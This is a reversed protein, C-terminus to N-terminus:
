SCAPRTSSGRRRRAGRRTARPHALRHGPLRRAPRAGAAADAAPAPLTLACGYHVLSRRCWCGPQRCRRWRRDARAPRDALAHRGPGARQGARRSGSAHRQGPQVADGPHLGLRDLVVQEALLGYRGDRERWRLPSRSRPPSRRPQRGAALRRGGGEARGAASAPRARGAHLADAGRRVTRAGRAHLWALLADPLQQSGTDIELDGGLLRRGDAALGREIAARLTGVAAIVAVGLALCALVIRLGRVGGRLERRALRLASAAPLLGCARWSVGGGRAPPPTGADISRGRRGDRRCRSCSGGTPWTSRGTAARRWSGTM